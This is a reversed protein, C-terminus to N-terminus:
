KFHQIIFHIILSSIGSVIGKIWLSKSYEKKEKSESQPFNCNNYIKISRVNGIKVGSTKVKMGKRLPSKRM